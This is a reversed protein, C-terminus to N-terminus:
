TPSEGRSSYRASDGRPSRGQRSAYLLSAGALGLLLPIAWVGGAPFGSAMLAPGVIGLTNNVVHCLIATRISGALHAVVGLYAGLLFALSTHIPDFHALGFVAASLAVGWFAGIRPVLGRQLFGRFLIEEGFGPAVGLALLALLLSPTRTRAERVLQDIEALAGTERLELSVLGQHLGGSLAVFGLVLVLSTSLPLNGRGLGLRNGLSPPRSLAAGYFALLTWAAQTFLSGWLPAGPGQPAPTLALVVGVGAVVLLLGIAFGTGSADRRTRPM